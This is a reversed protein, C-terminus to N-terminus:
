CISIQGLAGSNASWWPAIVHGLGCTSFLNYIISFLRSKSDAYALGDKAIASFKGFFQLSDGMVVIGLHLWVLLPTHHRSVRKEVARSNQCTSALLSPRRAFCFAMRLFFSARNSRLNRAM